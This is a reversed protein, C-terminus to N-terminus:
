ELTHISISYRKKRTIFDYLSIFCFTGWLLIHCFFVSIIHFFIINLIIIFAVLLLIIKFRNSYKDKIYIIYSINKTEPIAIESRYYGWFMEIKINMEKSDKELIIEDTKFKGYYENNIYVRKACFLNLFFNDSIIIKIDSM